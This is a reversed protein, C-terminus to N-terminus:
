KAFDRAMMHYGVVGIAVLFMMAINIRIHM